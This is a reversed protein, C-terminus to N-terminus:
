VGKVIFLKSAQKFDPHNLWAKPIKKLERGRFTVMNRGVHLDYKRNQRFMIKVTEKKPVKNVEPEEKVESVKEKAM